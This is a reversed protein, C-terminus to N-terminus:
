LNVNLMTELKIAFEIKHLLSRHEILLSLLDLIKIKFGGFHACKHVLPPDLIRRGIVLETPSKKLPLSVCKKL